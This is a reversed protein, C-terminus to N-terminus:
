RHGRGERPWREAEGEGDGKGWLQLEVMSEPTRAVEATNGPLTSLGVAGPGPWGRALHILHAQTHHARPKAELQLGTPVGPPRREEGLAGRSRWIRRCGQWPNTHMKTPKRSTTNWTFPNTVLHPPPKGMRPVLGPAGMSM